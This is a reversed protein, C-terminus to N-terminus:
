VIENEANDNAAVYLSPNKIVDGLLADIEKKKKINSFGIARLYNHM